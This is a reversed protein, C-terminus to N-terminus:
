PLRGDYNEKDLCNIAMTAYNHLDILVNRIIEDKGKGHNPAWLVLQPLRNVAGLIECVVGLVGYSEFANGYERNKNQFLKQGELCTEVMKVTNDDM